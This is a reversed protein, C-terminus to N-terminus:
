LGHVSWKQIIHFEDTFDGALHKIESIFDGGAASLVMEPSTFIFVAAAAQEISATTFHIASLQPTVDRIKTIAESVLAALPVVSLFQSFVQFYLVLVHINPKVCILYGTCEHVQSHETAHIQTTTLFKASDRYWHNQKFTVM